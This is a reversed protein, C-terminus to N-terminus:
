ICYSVIPMVLSTLCPPIGDGSRKLIYMSSKLKVKDFLLMPKQKSPFCILRTVYGLLKDINLM